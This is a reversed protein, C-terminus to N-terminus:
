PALIVIVTETSGITIHARRAPGAQVRKRFERDVSVFLRGTDLCALDAPSFTARGPDGVFRRGGCALAGTGDDAVRVCVEIGSDAATGPEWALTFGASKRITDGPALSTIHTKRSPIPLGATFNNSWPGSAAFTNMRGHQRLHDSGARLRHRHNFRGDAGYQRLPLGNFTVTNGGEDPTLVAGLSTSENTYGIGRLRTHSASFSSETTEGFAPAIASFIKWVGENGCSSLLLLPCCLASYLPLRRLM